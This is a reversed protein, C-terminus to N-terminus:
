GNDTLIRGALYLSGSILVRAPGPRSAHGAAAAMASDATEAKHGTASAAAALKDAPIAAKEGPITLCATVASLPALPAFYGAPDKSDIM